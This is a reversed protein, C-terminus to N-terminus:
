TTAEEKELITQSSKRARRSKEIRSPRSFSIWTPEAEIVRTDTDINATEEDDLQLHEDDVVSETSVAIHQTSGDGAEKEQFSAHSIAT